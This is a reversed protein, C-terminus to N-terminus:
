LKMGKGSNKVGIGVSCCERRTLSYSGGTLVEWLVGLFTLVGARLSRCFKASPDLTPNRLRPAHIPAHAKNHMHKSHACELGVAKRPNEFPDMVSHLYSGIFVLQIFCQGCVKLVPFNTHSSRLALFWERGMMIDEIGPMISSVNDSSILQQSFFLFVKLLHLLYSLIQPDKIVEKGM